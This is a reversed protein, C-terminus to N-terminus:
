MRNIQWSCWSSASRIGPPAFFASDAALALTRSPRTRGRSRAPCARRRTAASSIRVQLADVLALLGGVPFQDRRELRGPGRQHAQLPDAWGAGGPQQDLDSIDGPERVPPM